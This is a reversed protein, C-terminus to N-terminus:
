ESRSSGGPPSNTKKMCIYDWNNQLACESYVEPNKQMDDTLKKIYRMNLTAVNRCNAASNLICQPCFTKLCMGKIAKDFSSLYSIQENLSLPSKELYRKLNM